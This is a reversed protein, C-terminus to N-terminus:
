DNAISPQQRGQRKLADGNRQSRDTQRPKPVDSRRDQFQARVSRVVYMQEKRQIIERANPIYQSYWAYDYGVSNVLLGDGSKDDVFLVGHYTNDYFGMLKKYQPLYYNRGTPNEIFHQFEEIVKEVACKKPVFRDAKYIMKDAM